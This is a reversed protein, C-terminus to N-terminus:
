CNAHVRLTMAPSLAKEVPEIAAFNLSCINFGNLNGDMFM